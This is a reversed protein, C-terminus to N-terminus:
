ANAWRGATIFGHTGCDPCLISPSVTPADHTEQCDPRVCPGYTLTHGDSLAPACIIVGREGRDCRHEFRVTGNAYTLLRYMPGLNDIINARVWGPEVLFPEADIDTM